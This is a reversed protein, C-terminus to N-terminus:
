GVAQAAHVLHVNQPTVQRSEATDHSLHLVVQEMDIGHVFVDQHHHAIQAACRQGFIRVLKGQAAAQDALKFIWVQQKQGAQEMVDCFSATAVM